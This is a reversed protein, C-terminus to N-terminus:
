DEGLLSRLDFTHTEGQKVQALSALMQPDNAMKVSNKLARARREPNELASRIQPDLGPDLLLQDFHTNFDAETKLEM